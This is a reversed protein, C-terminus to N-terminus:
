QISSELRLNRRILNDIASKIIFIVTAM